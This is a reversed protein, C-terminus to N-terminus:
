EEGRWLAVGGGPLAVLASHGRFYVQWAEYDPDPEVRLVTGNAFRVVLQGDRSAEVASVVCGRLGEAVEAGTQTEPVVTSTHGEHEIVFPSEITVTDSGVHLHVQYNLVVDTVGCGRM